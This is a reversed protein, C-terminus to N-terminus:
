GGEEGLERPSVVLPYLTFKLKIGLVDALCHLLDNRVWERAWQSDCDPSPMTGPVKYMYM